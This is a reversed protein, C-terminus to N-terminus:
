AIRPAAFTPAAVLAAAGRLRPYEVAHTGWRDMARPLNCCGAVCKATPVAGACMGQAPNGCPGAAYEKRNAASKALPIVDCNANHLAVTCDADSACVRHEHPVNAWTTERESCNADYTFLSKKAIVKESARRGCVPAQQTMFTPPSGNPCTAPAFDEDIITRGKGVKTACAGFATFACPVVSYTADCWALPAESPERDAESSDTSASPEAVSADRSVVPNTATSSRPSSGSCSVGLAVVISM